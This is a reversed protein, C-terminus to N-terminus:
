FSCPPLLCRTPSSFRIGAAAFMKSQAAGDIEPDIFRASQIRALFRFKITLCDLLSQGLNRRDTWGAWTNLDVSADWTSSIEAAAAATPLPGVNLNDRRAAANAKTRHQGVM